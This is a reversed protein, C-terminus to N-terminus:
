IALCNNYMINYRKEISDLGSVDLLQKALEDDSKRTFHSIRSEGQGCPLSQCQSLYWEVSRRYNDREPGDPHSILMRANYAWLGSVPLVDDRSIKVHPCAESVLQHVKAYVEQVTIEGRPNNPTYTRDFQTVM